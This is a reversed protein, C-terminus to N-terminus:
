SDRLPQYRVERDIAIPVALGDPPTHLPCLADHTHSLRRPTFTRPLRPRVPPSQTFVQAPRNNCAVILNACNAHYPTTRKGNSETSM